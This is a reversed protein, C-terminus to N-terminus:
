AAPGDYRDKYKKLYEAMKADLQANREEPDFTEGKSVGPMKEVYVSTSPFAFSVGLTEALGIVALLVEHRAKLEEPWTPVAFFVYFLIDLSNASMDNLHIEFYDKRTHPHNAVIERLGEVFKEIVAPPTDYTINIKTSYRRYAREGYNNITMDALKGNPVYVLSNAFTRVRTSRMGVEEVSGDVGSFNIWDGIQFPKDMFITLSGFLNKITDQAALAVALGGISIGAILTTLNVDLVNLIQVLGALLAIGQLTRKLIPMLQEDLRSETKQTFKDAYLMMVDIIRMALLVFLITTIISITIYAFNITEIPLQLPPLFVRIFRLILLISLIRTIKHILSKEVLSPYIRSRSLRRVIPNLIRSIILHLLLALVLLVFLGLYQWMALGLVENHGLSPLLNLLKDTGYPYVKKHLNPIASVTEKSYYWLSDVKELYIEPMEEPFPTFVANQTTSDIYNPNQPIKNLHVYLGRGDLIQKLKIALRSRRTSDPVDYLTRAAVRPQYSDNQLYFLHVYMTNYPSELTVPVEDNSGQAWLFCPILLLILLHKFAKVNKIFVMKM